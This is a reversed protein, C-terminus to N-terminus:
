KPGLAGSHDLIVLDSYTLLLISPKMVRHPKEQFDDGQQQLWLHDVVRLLLCCGWASGGIGSRQLTEGPFRQAGIGSRGKTNFEQVM